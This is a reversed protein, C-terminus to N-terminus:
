PVGQETVSLLARLYGTFRTASEVIEIRKNDRELLSDHRAKWADARRCENRAVTGLRAIECRAKAAKAELAAIRKEARALAPSKRPRRM